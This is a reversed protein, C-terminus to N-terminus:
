SVQLLYKELYQYYKDGYKEQLLDRMNPDIVLESDEPNQSICGHFFIQQIDTLSNILNAMSYHEEVWEIPSPIESSVNTTIEM